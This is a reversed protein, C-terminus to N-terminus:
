DSSDEYKSHLILQSSSVIRATILTTFDELYYRLLPPTIGKFVLEATILNLYVVELYLLGFNQYKLYDASFRRLWFSM